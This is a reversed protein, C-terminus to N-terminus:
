CDYLDFVFFVMAWTCKQIKSSVDSRLSNLSAPPETPSAVPFLLLGWVPDTDSAPLHHSLVPQSPSLSAVLHGFGLPKHRSHHSTVQSSPLARQQQFHWLHHQLHFQCSVWLFSLSESYRWRERGDGSRSCSLRLDLNVMWRLEPNVGEKRRILSKREWRTEKVFVDDGMKLPFSFFLPSEKARSGGLSANGQEMKRLWIKFCYM